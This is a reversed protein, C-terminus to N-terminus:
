KSVYARIGQYHSVITEPNHPQSFAAVLNADPDVLFIASTHGVLYQGPSTEKELMYGAGFQQVINDINKKDGVFGIFDKNYFGMYDYLKEVTDREPDVSIFIVQPVSSLKANNKNLRDVVTNLVHLTTPCIDPCSTYGFFVFSWRDKFVQENVINGNQDVLEFFKLPKPESRLVGVLDQPPNSNKSIITWVVAASSLLIFLIVAKPIMSSKQHM